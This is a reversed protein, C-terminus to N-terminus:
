RAAPPARFALFFERNGKPGRLPSECDGSPTLGLARGHERIREVSARQLAPDRVVGGSGVQGKGVEFQPKVLVLIWAEPAAVGALVALVLRLSIFSVDAVIVEPAWPLDARTLARVNCRERLEVRPDSRLRWAFQGYGVDVAVVAAAGRQLV